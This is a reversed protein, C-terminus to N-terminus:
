GSRAARRAADIRARADAPLGADGLLSELIAVAEDRRGTQALLDAKAEALRTAGLAREIPLGWDYWAIAELPRQMAVYLHAVNNAVVTKQLDPLGADAWPAMVVLADAHDGREALKAVLAISESLQQMTADDTPM